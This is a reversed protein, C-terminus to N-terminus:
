RRKRAGGTTRSWRSSARGDAAGSSAAGARSRAADISKVKGGFVPCQAVAAYLMGPLQVDIGYRQKGM